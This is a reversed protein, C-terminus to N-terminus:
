KLKKKVEGIKEQMVEFGAEALKEVPMQGYSEIFVHYTGNGKDEYSCLGAQWKIHDKGVGAIAKAELKIKHKTMLKVLPMSEYAPKVADNESVLDKSYVTGPGEVEMRLIVTDGIKVNKVDSTLPILGMRHALNEDNLISTNTKYIIEEIAFVPVTSIITRRLANLLKVDAGKVDFSIINGEKKLNTINM